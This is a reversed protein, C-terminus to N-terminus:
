PFDALTLRIWEILHPAYVREVFLLYEARQVCVTLVHVEALRSGRAEGLSPIATMAGLRQLLEGARPGQVRLVSIGGTQDVMCGDAAGALQRGLVALGAAGSYLLLTETPSRWALVSQAAEGAATLAARLPQPLPEGLVQHLMGVFGGAHDFYRLSAVQAGPLAEVALGDLGSPFVTSRRDDM